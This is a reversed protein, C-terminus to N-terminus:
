LYISCERVILGSRDSKKTVLLLPSPWESSTEEIINDQLMEKIQRGKEQKQAM